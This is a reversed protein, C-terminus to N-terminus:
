RGDANMLGSVLARFTTEIDSRVAARDAAGTMILAAEGLAANLLRAALGVSPM